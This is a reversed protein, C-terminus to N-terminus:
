LNKALFNIKEERSIEAKTKKQPYKKEWDATIKADVLKYFEEARYETEIILPGSTHGREKPNYVRVKYIIPKLVKFAPTIPLSKQYYQLTLLFLDGGIEFYAVYVPSDAGNWHQWELTKYRKILKDVIMQEM